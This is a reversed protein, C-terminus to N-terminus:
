MKAFNGAFGAAAMDAEKIPDILKVSDIGSFNMLIYRGGMADPNTRELLLMEGKLMFGKFPTAENLTNTVIGRRPVGKPWSTFLTKWDEAHSMNGVVLTCFLDGLVYSERGDWRYPSLPRDFRAMQILQLCQTTTRKHNVRWLRM